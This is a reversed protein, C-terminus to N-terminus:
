QDVKQQYTEKQEAKKDRSKAFALAKTKPDKKLIEGLNVMQQTAKEVIAFDDGHYGQLDFIGENQQIKQYVANKEEQTYVKKKIPDSM